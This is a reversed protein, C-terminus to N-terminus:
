RNPLDDLKNARIVARIDSIYADGRESYATLTGALVHGDPENGSARLEARKLRYQRYAAHSNLNHIYADVSAAPSSFTRLDGSGPAPLGCDTGYCYHGFFNNAERTVQSRGWGSEIAAQAIALSAPVMDVRERLSAFFEPNRRAKPDLEYDRAMDKLWEFDDQSIDDEGMLETEIRDIRARDEELERNAEQVLPLLQAIFLRKRERIEEATELSSPPPLVFPEAPQVATDLRCGCYFLVSAFTGGFIAALLILAIAHRHSENPKM